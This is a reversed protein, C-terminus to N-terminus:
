KHIDHLPEYVYFAQPNRNFIEGAFSSGTRPYGFLVVFIPNEAVTLKPKMSRSSQYQKMETEKEYHLQFQVITVKNTNSKLLTNINSPKFGWLRSSLSCEFDNM